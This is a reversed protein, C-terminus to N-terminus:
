HDLHRPTTRRTEDHERVGLDLREGHRTGGPGRRPSGLSGVAPLTADLAILAEVDGPQRSKATVRGERM